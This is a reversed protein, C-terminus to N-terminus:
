PKGIQHSPLELVLWLRKSDYESQSQRIGFGESTTSAHFVLETVKASIPEWMTWEGIEM